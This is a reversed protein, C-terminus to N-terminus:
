SFEFSIEPESKWCIGSIASNLLKATATCHIAVPIEYVSQGDEDLCLSESLEQGFEKFCLVRDDTRPLKYLTLAGVQVMERLQFIAM